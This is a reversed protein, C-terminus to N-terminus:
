QQLAIKNIRLIHTHIPYLFFKITSYNFCIVRRWEVLPVRFVGIGVWKASVCMYIHTYVKVCCVCFVSHTHIQRRRYQKETFGCIRVDKKYEFRKQTEAKECVYLKVSPTLVIECPESSEHATFHHTYTQKKQTYGIYTTLQEVCMEYKPGGHKEMAPTLVWCDDHLSHVRETYTAQKHMPSYTTYLTITLIKQNEVNRNHQIFFRTSQPPNKANWNSSTYPIKIQNTAM